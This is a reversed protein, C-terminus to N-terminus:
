VLQGLVLALAFLTHDLIFIKIYNYCTVNIDVFSFMYAVVIAEIVRDYKKM